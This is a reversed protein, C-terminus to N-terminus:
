QCFMSVDNSVDSIATAAQRTNPKGTAYKRAIFTSFSCFWIASKMMASAGNQVLKRVRETAQAYGSIPRSPASLWASRLSWM